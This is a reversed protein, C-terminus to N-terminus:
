HSRSPRAASAGSSRRITSASRAPVPQSCSKTAQLLGGHSRVDIANVAHHLRVEGPLHGSIEVVLADWPHEAAKRTHAGLGHRRAKRTAHRGHLRRRALEHPIRRRHDVVQLQPKGLRRDQRRVGDLAKEAVHELVGGVLPEVPRGDPAAPEERLVVGDAAELERAVDGDLHRYRAILRVRADTRVHPAATRREAHRGVRDLEPDVVDEPRPQADEARMERAPGVQEAFTRREGVERDEAAVRRVEDVIGEAPTPGLFVCGGDDRVGMTEEFWLVLLEAAPVIRAGHGLRQGGHEGLEPSMIEGPDRARAALTDGVDHERTTRAHGHVRRLEQAVCARRKEGAVDLMAARPEVGDEVARADQPEERVM